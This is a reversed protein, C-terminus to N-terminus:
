SCAEAPEAEGRVLAVAHQLERRLDAHTSKVLGVVIFKNDTPSSAGVCDTSSVLVEFRVQFLM